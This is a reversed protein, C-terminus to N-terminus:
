WPKRRLYQTGISLSRGASSRFCKSLIKGSSPVLPIDLCLKVRVLSRCSPNKKWNRHHRYECFIVIESAVDPELQLILTVVRSLVWCEEVDFHFLDEFFLVQGVKLSRCRKNTQLTLIKNLRGAHSVNIETGCPHVLMVLLTSLKEFLSDILERAADNGEHEQSDLLLIQLQVYFLCNSPLNGRIILTSHTLM